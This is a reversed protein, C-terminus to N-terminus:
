YDRASVGGAPLFHVATIFSKGQNQIQRYDFRVAAFVFMSGVTQM